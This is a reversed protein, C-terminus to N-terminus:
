VFVHNLAPLGSNIAIWTTGEDTSLYPGNLTGAFINIGNSALSIINDTQSTISWSNGNNSSVFLGRQM